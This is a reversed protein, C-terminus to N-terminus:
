NVVVRHPTLATIYFSGTLHTWFCLEKITLLYQKVNRSIKAIRRQQSSCNIFVLMELLFFVLM